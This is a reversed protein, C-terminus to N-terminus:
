GAHAGEVQTAAHGIGAHARHLRRYATRRSGRDDERARARLRACPEDELALGDLLLGAVVVGVRGPDGLARM